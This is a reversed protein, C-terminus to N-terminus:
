PLAELRAGPYFHELIQRYDYGRQALGLAGYQSMGVGHGFGGGWFTIGLLRGQADREEQLAFAASPLTPFNLRPEGQWRELAVDGGGTLAKHPRLLSRIHSERRVVFRGTSTKIELETVYGGSTRGLVRIQELTGLAFGPADPSLPGEPTQVFPPAARAREPLTRSLLAELEERSLRLKWRWFPSAADYFGQPNWNQFFALAEAESQISVAHPKAQPRGRLYPQAPRDPWVEEISATAGPSTSFFFSQIPTGQFTLIQNRTADVAADTAPHTRTHNYAQESVSDDVDAGFQKWFTNAQQRTYAYTRAAVAQAKLAEPHFSAPMESPLVRKLYDQFDVANVVLLGSGRNELWLEGPYPELNPWPSALLRYQVPTAPDAPKLRVFAELAWVQGESSAVLGGNQLSFSLPKDAFVTVIPRLNEPNPGSLVQVRGGQPLLELGPFLYQGEFSGGNLRYSLLVRVNQGSPLAPPPQNQQLSALLLGAGLIFAGALAWQM